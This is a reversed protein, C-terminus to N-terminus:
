VVECYDKSIYGYAYLQFSMPEIKYYQDLEELIEVPAGRQLVGLSPSNRSPEERVNVYTSNAVRGYVKTPATEGWDQGPLTSEVSESDTNFITNRKRRM